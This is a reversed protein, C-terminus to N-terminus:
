VLIGIDQTKIGTKALLEDIAGFMVMKAEKRAEMWSRNQPIKMISPPFYTKQGFGSKELIKRKFALSEETFSGVQRCRDIVDERSCMLTPDPKFCAFNVLYVKRPHSAFYLTAIFIILQLCVILQSVNFNLHNWLQLIDKVSLTSLHLSLVGALPILLLYMTNTILYHYGLKVYKLRVTKLNYNPITNTTNEPSDKVSAPKTPPNPKKDYEM